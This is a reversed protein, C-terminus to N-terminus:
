IEQLKMSEQGEGAPSGGSYLPLLEIRQDIDDLVRTYEAGGVGGFKKQFEEDPLGEPLDAGFPMVDDERIGAALLAQMKTALEESSTVEDAFRTGARDALLDGFSFGSGGDADLEEKLIGVDLSASRNGIVKLAASILFHQTWDRRDRLKINRFRSLAVESPQDIKGVIAKVNSHGLLYALTLIAARNERVADGNQSRAQATAFATQVCQSFDIEPTQEAQIVLQRLQENCPQELDELLGINVLTDRVMGKELELKSYAVKVSQKGIEISDLSRFFPEVPGHQWEEDLVIPGSLRFLIEPVALRGIQLRSPAYVFEGDRASLTGSSTLNLYRDIVPIRSTAQLSVQQDSLEVAARHEGPALSLGWSALQNLDRETIELEAIEDEDLKRPDKGRFMEVLRRRDETSVEEAVIDLPQQSVAMWTMAACGGALLFVSFVIQKFAWGVFSARNMWTAGLWSGWLCGLLAVVIALITPMEIPSGQMLSAAIIAVPLSVIIGGSVRAVTRFISVRESFSACAAGCFFGLVLFLGLDRATSVGLRAVSEAMWNTDEGENGFLSSQGPNLFCWVAFGVLALIYVLAIAPFLKRSRSTTLLEEPQPHRTSSM